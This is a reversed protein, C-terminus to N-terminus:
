QKLRFNGLLTKLDRALHNLVNASAATEESTACNKQTANEIVSIGSSIQEVQIAQERSAMAIEEILVTTKHVAEVIFKLAENTKAAIESGSQVRGISTEIMEATEKAAKASRGALNRVEDAVVAFGRGHAGARAAEVAANLALLNTQFAIDDIVKIVKSIRSSDSSIQAMADVMHAMLENGKSAAAQAESSLRNALESKEANSRSRFAIDSLSSSIEEVSAAESSTQRSLDDSATILSEAGETLSSSVNSIRTLLETLSALMMKQAIGMTDKESVPIVDIELNGNGLKEAVMAAQQNAELIANTSEVLMQIEQALGDCPLRIEANRSRSVERLTEAISQMPRVIKRTLVFSLLALIILDLALILALINKMEQALMEKVFRKESFIQLEGLEEVTKGSTHVLKKTICPPNKDAESVAVVKWDKDRGFGTVKDNALILIQRINRGEMESQISRSIIEEDFSYIAPPLV